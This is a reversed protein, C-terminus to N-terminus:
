CSVGFVKVEGARCGGDTSSSCSGVVDASAKEGVGGILRV